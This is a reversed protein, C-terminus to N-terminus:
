ASAGQESAPAPASAGLVIQNRDHGDYRYLFSHPPLVRVEAHQSPEYKRLDAPCLLWADRGAISRSVWEVQSEVDLKFVFRHRAAQLITNSVLNPYPTIMLCCIGRNRGSNLLRAFNPKVRHKTAQEHVDDIVLLTNFASAMLRGCLKEFTAPSFDGTWLQASRGTIENMDACPRGFAGYNLTPRQPSWIVRPVEYFVESALLERALHTKGSGQMGLILINEQYAVYPFDLSALDSM